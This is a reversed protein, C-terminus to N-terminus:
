VLKKLWNGSLPEGFCESPGLRIRRIEDNDLPITIRSKDGHQRQIKTELEWAVYLDCSKIMLIEWELADCTNLMAHRYKTIGKTIGVKFFVAGAIKLKLYYVEARTTKRDPHKEFYKKSYLGGLNSDACLRCGGHLLQDPTTSFLGHEPCRVEIKDRAKEYNILSVDYFDGYIESVSKKWTAEFEHRKQSWANKVAKNRKTIVCDKCQKLYRKKNRKIVFHYTKHNRNPCSGIVTAQDLRREKLSFTYGILDADTTKQFDIWKIFAADNEFFVSGAEKADNYCLNCGFESYLVKKVISTFKGHKSCRFIVESNATIYEGEEYIIKKGFKKLLQTTFDKKRSEKTNNLVELTACKKCGSPRLHVHPEQWYEGHIKCLIKTKERMNTFSAKDYNYRNKHLTKANNVFDDFHTPSSGGCHRCGKGALHGDPSQDFPGHNSCIIKIKTKTNKYVVEDYSYRDGHVLIAKAIFEKTTLRKSMKAETIQLSQAAFISKTPVFWFNYEQNFDSGFKTRRVRAPNLKRVSRIYGHFVGM